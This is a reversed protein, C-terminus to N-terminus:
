NSKPGRPTVVRRTRQQHRYTRGVLRHPDDKPCGLARRSDLIQEHRQPKYTKM